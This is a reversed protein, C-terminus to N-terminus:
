NLVLTQSQQAVWAALKDPSTLYITQYGTKVFGLQSLQKLSKSISIRSVGLQAAIQEQSIAVAKHKQTERAILLLLKALRGALPLRKLDDITELSQHLRKSLSVLLAHALAPSNTLAQKLVSGSVYGLQTDGVAEATHTRPLDAFVVFEGFSEGPLLLKSLFYRGDNGYNGMKVAGSLVISLGDGHDGRQHILEGDLFSQVQQIESLEVLAQQPLVGMFDHATEGQNAHQNSSM